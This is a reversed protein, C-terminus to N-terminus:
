ISKIISLPGTLRTLPMTPFEWQKSLMISNWSSPSHFISSDRPFDLSKLPFEKYITYFILLKLTAIYGQIHMKM